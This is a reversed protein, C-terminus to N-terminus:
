LRGIAGVAPVFLTTKTISMEPDLDHEVGAEIVFALHRNAVVELGASARVVWRAGSADFVLADGSLLPRVMGTLLAIRAGASAGQDVGLIAAADLALRDTADYTVGVLAAAGKNAPDFHGMASLGFPSRRTPEAIAVVADQAGLSPQPASVVPAPILELALAVDTARGAVADARTTAPQYGAKRGRLAVAGPMVRVVRAHAVPLWEDDGIQLEADDPSVTIALRAVKADLAALATTVEGRKAPDADSADLYSQYANAAEAPRDLLSLTTGINLLIKASPFRAYADRFVALAGLYDHAELLKVGSKMLSKADVLGTGDDARAAPTAAALALVALAIARAVRSM